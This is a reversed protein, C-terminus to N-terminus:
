QRRRFCCALFRQSVNFVSNANKAHGWGASDERVSYSVCKNRLRM